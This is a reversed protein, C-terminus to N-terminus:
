VRTVLVASFVNADLNAQRNAAFAKLDGAPGNQFDTNGGANTILVDVHEPLEALAREVADPDGRGRLRNGNRRRHGGSREAAGHSWCLSVLRQRLLVALM